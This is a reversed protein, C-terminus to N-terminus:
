GTYKRVLEIIDKTIGGELDYTYSEGAEPFYRVGTLTDPHFGRIPDWSVGPFWLDNRTIPTKPRERNELLARM